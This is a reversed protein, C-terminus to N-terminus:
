SKVESAPPESDAPASVPAPPEEGIQDAIELATAPDDDPSSPVIAQQAEYQQWGTLWKHHGAWTLLATLGFVVVQTLTGAIATQSTHFLGLLHVHVVLWDAIAGSLVAIYPGAFAVIRNLPVKSSM